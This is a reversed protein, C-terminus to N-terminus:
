YFLFMLVLFTVGKLVETWGAARLKIKYLTVAFILNDSLPILAFFPASIVYYVTAAFVLYLCMASREWIRKRLQVRVKFVGACFFVAVAIYLRLDVQGACLFKAIPAAMALLAFGAVETYVAHEGAYRSLLIYALPVGAYPLFKTVSEGFLLLLIVSAPGAQMSFAAMHRGSEAPQARWWLTLAQKSNILLCIAIFAPLVKLSFGGSVLVGTLFSLAMVGWSGYEKLLYRKM